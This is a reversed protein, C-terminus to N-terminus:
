KVKKTKSEKAPTIPASQAANSIFTGWTCNNGNPNLNQAKEISM